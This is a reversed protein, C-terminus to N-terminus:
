VIDIETYGKNHETLNKLFPIYYYPNELSIQDYVGKGVCFKM